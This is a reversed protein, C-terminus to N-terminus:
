FGGIKKAPFVRLSKDAMLQYVEVGAKLSQDVMNQTGRGGPFAVVRDAGSKLMEKNRIPGAARGHTRWDAPFSECQIGNTDAWDKALRDAGRADGQIVTSLEPVFHNLTRNLFDTDDYDRGGCVIVRMTADNDGQTLAFAARQGENFLGFRCANLVSQRFDLRVADHVSVLSRVPVRQVGIVRGGADVM